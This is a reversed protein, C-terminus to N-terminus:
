IEVGDRQKDRERKRWVREDDMNNYVARDYGPVSLIFTHVFSLWQIKMRGYALVVISEKM